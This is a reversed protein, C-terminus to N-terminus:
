IKAGLTAALTGGKLFLGGAALGGLIGPINLSLCKVAAYLMCGIGITTGIAGNAINNIFIDYITYGFSNQDTPMTYAFAASMLIDHAACIVFVLSVAWATRCEGFRKALLQFM